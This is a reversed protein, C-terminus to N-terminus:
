GTTGMSARRAANLNRNRSALATKNMKKPPQSKINCVKILAMLKNLHWYQTEFPVTLAVMWQYIVEATIIERSPPGPKDSFTTAHNNKDIYERVQNYHDNTLSGFVHDPVEPTLCMCKIYDLTEDVTKENRSLFAKEYKSEWKSLSVLSHEFELVMDPVQIFTMDTEDVYEHGKITLRLM